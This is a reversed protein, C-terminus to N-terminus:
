NPLGAWRRRIEDATVKLILREDIYWVWDTPIVRESSAGGATERKLVITTGEVHDITGISQGDSGIVEMNRARQAGAAGALAAPVQGPQKLGGQGYLRVKGRGAKPTDCRAAADVLNDLSRYASAASPTSLVSAAAAEVPTEGTALADAGAQTSATMEDHSGMADDLDICGHRELTAAVDAVHAEDVHAIVMVRGRRVAQAFTNHDDTDGFLRDFSAWFREVHDPKDERDGAAAAEPSVTVRDDPIAYRRLMLVAANANDRDDFLATVTQLAM